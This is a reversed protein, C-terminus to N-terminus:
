LKNDYEFKIHSYFENNEPNCMREAEETTKFIFYLQNKGSEPYNELIPVHLYDRVFIDHLSYNKGDYKPYICSTLYEDFIVNKLLGNKPAYINRSHININQEINVPFGSLDMGCEAKLIWDEWCIERSIDWHSWPVFFGSARRHVDFIYPKYDKTIMLEGHFKGDVLNLEKALKNIDDIILPAFENKYPAPIQFGTCRYNAPFQPAVRIGQPYERYAEVFFAVVKKNIIMSTFPVFFGEIFPEVIIMGNKSNSFALNVCDEIENRNNVISVGNSGVNDSPKVILKENTNRIYDIANEKIDFVESIPSHLNLDKAIKKFSNKTHIKLTTEYSDHGPLGLKECVYATSIMGFDNSNSCMYDIKEDIAIKLMEEKNAYDAKIYKDSFEHAIDDPRYGSTIVYMGMRHAANVLALDTERGGPILIKKRNMNEIM